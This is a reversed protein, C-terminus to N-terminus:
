PATDDHGDALGPFLGVAITQTDADAADGDGLLALATRIVVLRRDCLVDLSAIDGDGDIDADALALRAHPGAVEGVAIDIDVGVIPASLNSCGFFDSSPAGTIGSPGSAGDAIRMSLARRRRRGNRRSSAGSM